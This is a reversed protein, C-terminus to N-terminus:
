NGKSDGRALEGQKNGKGRLGEYKSPIGGRQTTRDGDVRTGPQEYVSRGRGMGEGSWNGSGGPNKWIM